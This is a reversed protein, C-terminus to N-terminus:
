SADASGRPSWELVGLGGGLLLSAAGLGLIGEASLAAMGGLAVALAIFLPATAAAGLLAAGYRDRVMRRGLSVVIGGAVFGVFVAVFWPLPLESPGKRPNVATFAALLGFYFGLRAGWRAGVRLRPLLAHRSSRQNM